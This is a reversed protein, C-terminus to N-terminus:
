AANSVRELWALADFTAATWSRIDDSEVSRTRGDVRVLPDRGHAVRHRAIYIASIQEYVAPLEDRMNRSCHDQPHDSLHKLLDTGNFADMPFLTDRAVELSLALALICEPIKGSANENHSDLFLLWYTPPDSGALARDLATTWISPDVPRMYAAPTM